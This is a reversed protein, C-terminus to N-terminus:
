QCVMKCGPSDQVCKDVPLCSSGNACENTDCAEGKNRDRTMTFWHDTTSQRLKLSDASAQFEYKAVLKLGADYFRIFTKGDPSKTYRFPGLRYCDAGCDGSIGRISRGHFGKPVEPDDTILHLSRIESPLVDGNFRDLLSWERAVKPVSPGSTPFPTDGEKLDLETDAGAQGDDAAEGCGVLM